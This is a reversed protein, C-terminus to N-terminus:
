AGKTAKGSRKKVRRAKVPRAVIMTYHNPPQQQSGYTSVSQKPAANVSWTLTGLGNKTTM